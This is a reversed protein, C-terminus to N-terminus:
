SKGGTAKGQQAEATAAGTARRSRRRWGMVMLLEGVAADSVEDKLPVDPHVRYSNRRGIRSKTVYGADELDNIIRHAARETIGVVDGIERATVGMHRAIAALVLGHNTIFSWNSM